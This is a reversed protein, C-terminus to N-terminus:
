DHRQKYSFFNVVKYVFGIRSVTPADLIVVLFGLFVWGQEWDARVRRQSGAM